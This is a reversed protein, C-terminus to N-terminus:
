WLGLTTENIQYLALGTEEMVITSQGIRSRIENYKQIIQAKRSVYPDRKCTTISNFLRICIAEVVRSKSPSLSPVGASVFSRKMAEQGLHGSQNKSREFRGRAPKIVRSYIIPKKDYESLSKYLKVINESQTKTLCLGEPELLASALQDVKDWGEIGRFDTAQQVDEEDHDSESDAEYLTAPETFSDCAFELEPDLSEVESQDQTDCIEEDTMGKEIEEDIDESSLNIKMGEETYLYEVGFLEGTHVAPTRYNSDLPKGLVDSTLRHIKNRLKSDFSRLRSAPADIAASARSFNWRDIGDM